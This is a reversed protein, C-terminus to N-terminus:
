AKEDETYTDISADALLPIETEVIYTFEPHIDGLTACPLCKPAMRSAAEILM